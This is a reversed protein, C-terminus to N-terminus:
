KDQKGGNVRVMATSTGLHWDSYLPSYVIGSQEVISLM